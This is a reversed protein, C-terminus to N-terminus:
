VYLGDVNPRVVHGNRRRQVGPARVSGGFMSMKFKPGRWRETGIV